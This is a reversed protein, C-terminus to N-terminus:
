SRLLLRKLKTTPTDYDLPPLSVATKKTDIATHNSGLGAPTSSLPQLSNAINTPVMPANTPYTPVAYPRKVLRVQLSLDTCALQLRMYRGKDASCHRFTESCVGWFRSICSSEEKGSKKRLTTNEKKALRTSWRQQPSCRIRGSDQKLM